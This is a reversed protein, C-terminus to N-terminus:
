IVNSIDDAGLAGVKDFTAGFPRCLAPLVKLAGGAHLATMM